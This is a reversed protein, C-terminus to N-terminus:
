KPAELFPSTEGTLSELFAVLDAREQKTLHTLPKIQKDLYPNSSGGGVYFDVVEKLTKLSGDHMYPATLAANRLSPTRFAGRDTDRDTQVFRGLDPMEGEPDLGAGLNHFARDTFLAYKEEMTHCVVCNGKGPNRFVELGRKAEASLASKEGGYQFRDFASNGSVLTREFSAIAKAIKEMTVPGEGFAAEFLKRLDADESCSRELGEVSHAMEVPNLMPGSAQAELGEARGDWFQQPYYAANLVTPANRTGKKSHVGTSVQQRDTFGLSPNHCDACSLTRDVSLIRSFYLKSGLEIAEATPPNNAPVPVPPLGLPAKLSVPRGVPHVPTM